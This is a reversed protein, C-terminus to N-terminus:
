LCTITHSGSTWEDMNETCQLWVCVSYPGIIVKISDCIQGFLIISAGHLYIHGEWLTFENCASLENLWELAHGNADKDVELSLNGDQVFKLEVGAEEKDDFCTAFDM